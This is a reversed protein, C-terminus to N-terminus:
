EEPNRILTFNGGLSQGFREVTKAPILGSLCLDGGSFADHFNVLPIVSDGTRYAMFHDFFLSKEGGGAPIECYFVANSINEPSFPISYSAGRPYKRRNLEFSEMYPPPAVPLIRVEKLWREIEQAPSYCGFVVLDKSELVLTLQNLFCQPSRPDGDFKWIYETKLPLYM